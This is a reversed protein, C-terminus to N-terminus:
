DIRTSPISSANNSKYLPYLQDQGLSSPYVPRPASKIDPSSFRDATSPDSLPKSNLSTELRTSLNPNNNTDSGSNVRYFNIHQPPNTRTKQSPNESRPVKSYPLSHEKRKQHETRWRNYPYILSNLLTNPRSYTKSEGCAPSPSPVRFVNIDLASSMWHKQHVSEKTQWLEDGHIDHHYQHSIAPCSEQLDDALFHLTAAYQRSLTDKWQIKFHAPLLQLLRFVLTVALIFLSAGVIKLTM